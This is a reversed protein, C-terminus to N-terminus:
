PGVDRAQNAQATPCRCVPDKRRDLSGPCRATPREGSCEHDAVDCSTIQMPTSCNTAERQTTSTAPAANGAPSGRRRGLSVLARLTCDCM